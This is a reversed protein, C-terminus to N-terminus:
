EKVLVFFPVLSSLLISNKTRRSGPCTPFYDEGGFFLIFYFAYLTREMEVLVQDLYGFTFFRLATDFSAFTRVWHLSEFM